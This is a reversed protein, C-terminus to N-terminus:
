RRSARADERQLHRALSAIEDACRIARTALENLREPQLDQGADVGKNAADALSQILSRVELALSEIRGAPHVLAM